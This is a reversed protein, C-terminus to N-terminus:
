FSYRFVFLFLYFFLPLFISFLLGLEGRKKEGTPGAGSRKGRGLEHEGGRASALGPAAAAWSREDAWGRVEAQGADGPGGRLVRSGGKGFWERAMGGGERACPGGASWRGWVRTAHRGEGLRRGRRDTAGGGV